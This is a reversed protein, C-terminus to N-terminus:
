LAVEYDIAVEAIELDTAGIERGIAELRERVLLPGERGRVLFRKESARLKEIILPRPEGPCYRVHAGYHGAHSRSCYHREAKAM